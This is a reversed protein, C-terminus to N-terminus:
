VGNKVITSSKLVLIYTLNKYQEQVHLFCVALSVQFVFWSYIDLRAKSQQSCSDENKGEKGAKTESEYKSNSVKQNSSM